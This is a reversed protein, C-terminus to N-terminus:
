IIKRVKRSCFALKRWLPPLSSWRLLLVSHISYVYVDGQGKLEHKMQAITEFRCFDREQSYSRTTRVTHVFRTHRRRRPAMPYGRIVSVSHMFFKQLPHFCIFKSQSLLRAAVAHSGKYEDSGKAVSTHLNYMFELTCAVKHM